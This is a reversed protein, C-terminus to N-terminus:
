SVYLNSLRCLNQIYKLSVAKNEDSMRRVTARLEQIVGDVTSTYSGPVEDKFDKNLFYEIDGAEIQEAYKDTVMTKWTTIIMRPNTKKVGDLYLRARSFRSDVSYTKAIDDLYEDIQKVFTSLILSNNM